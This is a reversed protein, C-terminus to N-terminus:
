LKQYENKECFWSRSSGEDLDKTLYLPEINHAEVYENVAPIVEYYIRRGARFPISEVYDHGSIIGGVRVKPVWLELDQKVNKYDHGADIYVFDLYGDSFLPAAEHSWMKMMKANYRRLAKHCRWHLKDAKIQARGPNALSLGAWCDVAYLELNPISKCLILSYAGAAVGIEAGKTYGREAFMKAIDERTGDFYEIKM